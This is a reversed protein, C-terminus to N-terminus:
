SDVLRLFILKVEVFENLFLDTMGEAKLQSRATVTVHEYLGLESLLGKLTEFGLLGGQAKTYVKGFKEAASLALSRSKTTSTFGWRWLADIATKWSSQSAKFVFSKGDYIGM